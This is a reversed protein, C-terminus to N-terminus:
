EFEIEVQGGEVRVPYSRIPTVAPMCLVDGTRLSFRAGHRPCEIVDGEVKGEALPGDDHTCLDDVACLSKDDLQFVAIRAGQVQVVKPRGPRIEESKGVGVWRKM